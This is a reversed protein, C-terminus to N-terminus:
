PDVRLVKKPGKAGLREGLQRAVRGQEIWGGEIACAGQECEIVRDCCGHMTESVGYRGMRHAGGGSRIRVAVTLSWLSTKGFFTAVNFLGNQTEKVSAHGIEVM